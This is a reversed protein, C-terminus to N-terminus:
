FRFKLWHDFNQDLIQNFNSNQDFMQNLLTIKTLM